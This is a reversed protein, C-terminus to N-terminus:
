IITASVKLHLGDQNIECSSVGLKTVEVEGKVYITCVGSAGGVFPVDATQWGWSITDLSDSPSDMLLSRDLERKISEREGTPMVQAQDLLRMLLAKVNARFVEGLYAQDHTNTHATYRVLM